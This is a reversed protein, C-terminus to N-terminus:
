EPAGAGTYPASAGGYKRLGKYFHSLWYNLNPVDSKRQERYDPYDTHSYCSDNSKSGISGCSHHEPYTAHYEDHLFSLTSLISDLLANAVAATAISMRVVTTHNDNPKDSAFGNTETIQNDINSNMANFTIKEANRIRYELSIVFLHKPAISVKTTKDFMYWM